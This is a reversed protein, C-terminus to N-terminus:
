PSAPATELHRIVKELTAPTVSKRQIRQLKKLSPLIDAAHVPFDGLARTATDAVFSEQGQVAQLLAPISLEPAAHLRGLIAAATARHAAQGDAQGLIEIAVPVGGKLIASAPDIGEFTDLAMLRVKTDPDKLGQTLVPQLATKAEPFYRLALFANNRVSSHKPDHALGIFIPLLRDRQTTKLQNLLVADDEGWTFYTIALARVTGQEDELADTMVSLAGMADKSLAALLQVIRMRLARTADEKPKPLINVLFAPANQGVSPHVKRYFRDWVPTARKLGRALVQVGEDGFNRWTEIQEENNYEISEIWAKETQGRFPTRGDDGSLMIYLVVSVMLVCLALISGIWVRKKM